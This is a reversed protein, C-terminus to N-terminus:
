RIRFLAAGPESLLLEAALPAGGDWRLRQAGPDYQVGRRQYVVFYDDSRVLSSQPVTNRYPDFYVNHPYLHYAARGRRLGSRVRHWM